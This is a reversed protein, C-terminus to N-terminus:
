SRESLGRYSFYEPPHGSFHLHKAVYSCHGLLPNALEMSCELYVSINDVLTVQALGVFSNHIM